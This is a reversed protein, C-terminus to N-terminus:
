REAEFSELLPVISGSWSFFEKVYARGALGHNPDLSVKDLDTLISKAIAEAGEAVALVPSPDPRLAKAALPTTTCPLSMSMAELLKNQLGTGLRMPAVFVKSRGYATRIDDIWGTVEVHPSALAKVRRHPEAGAICVKIGPRTAHIIPLIEQVLFEAADINPPYQMNGLFLIDTTKEVETPSFFATDVGNPVVKINGKNPHLILNREADSIISHHEFYDFILHEYAVLRKHEAQIFWRQPGKAKALRREMGKGLADMYDLTKHCTHIHKVYEAARILQCYIHDPAFNSAVKYVSARARRQFFYSVQFPRNSLLGFALNFWRSIRNVEIVELQHCVEGLAKRTEDSVRESTLCCLCIVVHPHLAKLQHYMRLKDGKELPWPVRSTMVMLRKM